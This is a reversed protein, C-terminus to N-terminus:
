LDAEKVIEWEEIKRAIIVLINIEIKRLMKKL